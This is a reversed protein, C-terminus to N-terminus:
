IMQPNPWYWSLKVSAFSLGSLCDFFCQKVKAFTKNIAFNKRLHNKGKLWVDEVPNQDPANPAFLLCTVKWDAEALGANERALLAQMEAGRHYTAGDWLFLLQKGPYLSQCWQVYAVTNDGNGAAVEKLHFTGTVLNLAGYYTQRERENTMAVEIAANRKGWVMGCVDGWLLHSEDELLVIM